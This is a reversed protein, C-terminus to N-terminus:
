VVVVLEIVIEWDLGLETFYGCLCMDVPILCLMYMCVCVRVVCLLSLCM